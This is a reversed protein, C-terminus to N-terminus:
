GNIQECSDLRGWRSYHRLLCLTTTQVLVARVLERIRIDLGSSPFTPPPTDGPQRERQRGGTGEELVARGYESM